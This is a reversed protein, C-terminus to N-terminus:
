IQNLRNPRFPVRSEFAQQLEQAPVALMLELDAHNADQIWCMETGYDAYPQMFEKSGREIALRHARGVDSVVYGIHDIGTRYKEAFEFERAEQYPPGIIEIMAQRSSSDFFSDAIYIFAGSHDYIYEFISQFGFHREYFAKSRQWNDSFIDFHHLLFDVPRDTSQAKPVKEKQEVIEIPVHSDDWIMFSKRQATEIPLHIPDVGATILQSWAVDLSDVELALHHIGTGREVHWAAQEPSFPPGILELFIESGSGVWISSETHDCIEHGLVKTYFNVNAELNDCLIGLHHIKYRQISKASM